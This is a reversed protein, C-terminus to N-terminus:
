FWSSGKERQYLMCGAGRVSDLLANREVMPWVDLEIDVPLVEEIRRGLKEMMVDRERERKFVLVLVQAAKNAGQVYVQPLHAEIVEDIESVLQLLRRTLHEPLRVGVAPAGILVQSGAPVVLTKL